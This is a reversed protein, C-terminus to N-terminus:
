GKARKRKDAPAIADIKELTESSFGPGTLALLNDDLQAVTRAGILASTVGRQHLVWQLAMHHLAQGREEAIQALVRTRDKHTHVQEIRLFGEARAARSGEPIFEAYKATLM